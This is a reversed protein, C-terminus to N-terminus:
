EESCVQTATTTYEIDATIGYKKKLAEVTGDAKMEALRKNYAERLDVDELRFAIASWGASERGNKGIYGTFPMAREVIAKINPDRLYTGVFASAVPVADARGGTLAAVAADFTELLLIRDKPVGAAVANEVLASGRDAALRIKPNGAIDAYSHINFPNGKPVFLADKTIRDPDSFAVAKCRTPTIWMGAAIADFRRAQLSSILAPFESIVYDIKKIGLPEFAARILDPAFGAVEGNEDRYGDPKGNSIGITIKGESKIRELTTKAAAPFGLAGFAIMMAAGGIMARRSTGNM